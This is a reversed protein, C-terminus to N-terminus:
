SLDLARFVDPLAEPLDEAIMGPGAARAAEVHLWATAEVAPHPSDFVTAPALLGAIMGALVDGAGATGLWPATRAYAAAHVSAAGGPSAIVTDPGKLLVTCGSRDAAQRVADVKSMGQSLRKPAALDPFLRAFEGEHPTMVCLPHLLAFFAGPDEAFSTLADADLVVKRPQAPPEPTACAAATLARTRPGVGLGPGVVLSALREDSLVETLADADAVSRLMVADLRAANEQLASPPCAVTALGAGVRLAARAALRAAGGRGVGGALVLVHGRDYKHGGPHLVPLHMGPWMRGRVARGFHRGDVLRVRSPSPPQMLISETEDWEALGIDHVVLKGCARPGGELYHGAKAAHFTVTLDALLIWKQARQLWTQWAEFAADTEEDFGAPPDPFLQQGTDCDLGSPADVAVARVAGRGPRKRVARLTDVAVEPIARSLGTGFLADVILDPRAGEKACDPNLPLVTGLTDWRDRNIRADPPLRDADGLAFVEVRWGRAQLLRAVVYGDGGNNGPGCLIVAHGATEAMSPWEALIASVVGAGAVEMLSLGTVSGSEISAQEIARMQASTLIHSM